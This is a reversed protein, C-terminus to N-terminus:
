NEFLHEATADDDLKLLTPLADLERFKGFIKIFDRFSILVDFNM